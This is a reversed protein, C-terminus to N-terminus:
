HSDPVGERRDEGGVDASPSIEGSVIHGPERWTGSSRHLNWLLPASNWLLLIFSPPSTSAAGSFRRPRRQLLLGGRLSPRRLHLVHCRDDRKHSGQERRDRRDRRLDVHQVILLYDHWRVDRLRATLTTLLRGGRLRRCGARNADLFYGSREAVHRDRWVRTRTPWRSEPWRHSCCRTMGGATCARVPPSRVRCSVPCLARAQPLSHRQEM